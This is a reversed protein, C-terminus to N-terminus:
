TVDVNVRFATGLYFYNFSPVDTSLLLKLGTFGSVGAYPSDPSYWYSIKGTINGNSFQLGNLGFSFIWGNTDPTYSIYSLWMIPSFICFLISYVPTPVHYYQGWFASCQLLPSIFTTDNTRGAILCLYNSNDDSLIWNAEQLRNYKRTVLRQAQRVSLGGLLDYKDLEVVAEKFIEEAEERSEVESLRQEIDDFLSEVEDAEQQTLKVTHKKDLGCFEVNFEVLDDKVVSANIYPAFAIGIFLLIVVISICKRIYTNKM